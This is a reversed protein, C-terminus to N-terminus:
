RRTARRATKAPAKGRRIPRKKPAKPKASARVDADLRGTWSLVTASEGRKLRPPTGPLILTTGAWKAGRRIVVMLAKEELLAKVIAIMEGESEVPYCAQAPAFRIWGDDGFTRCILFGARSGRPAALSAEFDGGDLVELGRKFRPCEGLLRESFRKAVRSLSRTGRMLGVISGV